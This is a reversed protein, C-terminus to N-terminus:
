LAPHVPDIPLFTPAPDGSDERGLTRDSSDLAVGLDQAEQLLM